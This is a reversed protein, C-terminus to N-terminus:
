RRSSLSALGEPSERGSKFAGIRRVIPRIRLPPARPAESGHCAFPGCDDPDRSTTRSGGAGAELLLPRPVRNRGFVGRAGPPLASAVRSRGDRPHRRVDFDSFRTSHSLDGGIAATGHRPRGQPSLHGVAHDHPCVHGDRSRSGSPKPLLGASGDSRAAGHDSSGEPHQEFLPPMSVPRDRGGMRATAAKPARSAVNVSEPPRAPATWTSAAPLMQMM